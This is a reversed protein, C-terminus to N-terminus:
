KQVMSQTRNDWRYETEVRLPLGYVFPFGGPCEGKTMRIHDVVMTWEEKTCPVTHLGAEYCKKGRAIVAKIVSVDVTALELCYRLENRTITM